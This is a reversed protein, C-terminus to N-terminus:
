LDHLKKEEFILMANFLKPFSDCSIGKRKPMAWIVFRSHPFPCERLKPFQKVKKAFFFKTEIRQKFKGKQYM